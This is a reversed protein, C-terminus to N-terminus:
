RKDESRISRIFPLIDKEVQCDIQGCAIGILYCVSAAM